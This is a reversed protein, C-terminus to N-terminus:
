EDHTVMFDMSVRFLKPEVDEEPMDQDSQLAIGGVRIGAVVGRFGDLTQRVATALTKAGSYTMAYADVQMRPQAMGSPGSLSRWRVGSVRQYVLFPVDVDQPALLPFIRDAVLAIIAPADKLLSYVALEANM